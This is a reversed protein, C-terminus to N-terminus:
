GGLQAGTAALRVLWHSWSWDRRRRLDDDSAYGTERLVLRSGEAASHIAIVTRLPGPWGEAQWRLTLSEPEDIQEVRGTVIPWGDIEVSVEGGVVPDLEVTGGMWQSAAEESVLLAFLTAPAVAYNATKELVLDDM